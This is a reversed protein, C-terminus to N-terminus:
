FLFTCMPMGEKEYFYMFRWSKLSPHIIYKIGSVDSWTPDIDTPELHDNVLCGLNMGEQRFRQQAAKDPFILTVTIPTFEDKGNPTLDLNICRPRDGTRIYTETMHGKAYTVQDAWVMYVESSEEEHYILTLGHDVAYKKYKALSQGKAGFNMLKLFYKFSFPPEKQQAQAPMALVLAALLAIMYHKM